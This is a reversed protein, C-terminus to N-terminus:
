KLNLKEINKTGEIHKKSRMHMTKNFRMYRGFCDECVVYEKGHEYFKDKNNNVYEKFTSASCIKCKSSVGHTGNRDKYFDDLIKETKCKYCRKQM